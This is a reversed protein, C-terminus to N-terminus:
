KEVKWVAGTGVIEIEGGSLALATYDDTAYTTNTFREIMTTFTSERVDGCQESNLHPIFTFDYLEMGISHDSEFEEEGFLEPSLGQPLAVGAVMSGASIGLYVRTQLLTLLKEKVAQEHLIRALYTEDGGGFCIVDAAELHPLWVSDPLGAV